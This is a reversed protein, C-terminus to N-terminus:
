PQRSATALPKTLDKQLNALWGKPVGPQPGGGDESIYQSDSLIRIVGESAVLSVKANFSRHQLAGDTQQPSTQGLKWGRAVLTQKMVSEIQEDSLGDPISVTLPNQNYRDAANSGVVTGCGTLGILLLLVVISTLAVTKQM